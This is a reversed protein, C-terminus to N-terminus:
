GRCQPHRSRDQIRAGAADIQGAPATDAAASIVAAIDAMSIDYRIISASPVEVLIEPAAVV